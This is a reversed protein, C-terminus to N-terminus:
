GELRPADEPLRLYDKLLLEYRPGEASAGAHPAAPDPKRLCGAETPSLPPTPCGHAPMHSGPVGSGAKAAEWFFAQTGVISQRCAM